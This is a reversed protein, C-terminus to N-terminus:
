ASVVLLGSSSKPEWKVFCSIMDLRCTWLFGICQLLHFFLGSYPYKTWCIKQSMRLFFSYLMCMGSAFHFECSQLPRILAILPDIFLYEWSISRSISLCSRSRGPSASRSPLPSRLFPSTPPQPSRLPCDRLTEAADAEDIGDCSGNDSNVDWGQTGGIILGEEALEIAQKIQAAIATLDSSWRLFSELGTIVGRWWRM